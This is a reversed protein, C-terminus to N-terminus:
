SGAAKQLHSRFAEPTGQLHCVTCERQAFHEQQQAHCTLCLMRDPVLRAVIAPAHCADCAVHAEVPPAHAAEIDRTAGETHCAACQKGAAHHDEHCAACSSVAPAPDLSAPTTHCAVCALARHREHEFRAPHM